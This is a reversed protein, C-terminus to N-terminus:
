AIPLICIKSVSRKLIGTATKVKVVRVKGDEGRIIENIRGLSWKCPPLNDDVLLVMDNVAVNLKEWQWKTRQQLNSLYDRKWRLWIGQVFKTTLQWRSLRNEKVELLGPEPIATLPRGILFHGPTLAQLDNPDASMPSIPRSNLIAEIQVLITLLEEYTVKANAVVRRLHYKVSKVGAEWLGGFNPSKPPIFKWSVNESTLYSSLQDNSNRVLQFLRKLEANAGVFNTANDSYIYASKGRRAFFRKLCAIFAETTLDLVLEIHIAKTAFCVFIAIYVKYLNNKRQNKNRILLPGCFDVGMHTFPPSLSSRERPLSGMIQTVPSPKAKFCNVCNRVIKRAISRGNLPWFQQRVSYLLSQPGLHLFKHHFYLMLVRTFKSNAPLIIPHKANYNLESNNLRGGVRIIEDEDLFPDFSRLKSTSHIPKGKKLRNWEGSFNRVQVIKILHKEVFAIEEKNLPGTYKHLPNRSNRYFRYVFSFIRILKLYSNTISLWNEFTELDNTLVFTKECKDKLERSFDNSKVCALTEDEPPNNDLTSPGYWWLKNNVIKDASLGRSVLDAPNDESRIHQWHYTETREKIKAVRNRVFTKLVYPDTRLWALVITADTWLHVCNLKLNLSCIVKTVLKSLLDAACLELRPITVPKLPAVRSKSCLLNMTSKGASNICRIYVAAGYADKSADSFGHLELIVEDYSTLVYRNVKLEQLAKLSLVFKNWNRVENDLLPQDWDKKLLWLKKMFIKATVIIPGLLGLPDFLRAIYSLVSRKTWAQIENPNCPCYELTDLKPNWILGLTKITEDDKDFKYERDENPLDQLLCKKNSSWKHLQMGASGLLEILQGQLEKGTEVSSVGSVLDDVYFDTELREAALPFKVRGDIAIQKLTRTALFPASTTGYTVTNLQYVRVPENYNDKWFIRQLNRQPPDILIM